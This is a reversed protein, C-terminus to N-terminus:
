FKLKQYNKYNNTNLIEESSVMGLRVVSYLTLESLYPFNVRSIDRALQREEGM